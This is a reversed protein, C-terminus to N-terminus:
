VKWNHYCLKGNYSYRHQYHETSLTSQHQQFFLVARVVDIYYNSQCSLRFSPQWIFYFCDREQCLCQEQRKIGFYFLTGHDQSFDTFCHTHLRM